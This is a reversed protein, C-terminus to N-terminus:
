GFIPDEVLDSVLCREIEAERRDFAPSDDNVVKLPCELEAIWCNVAVTSFQYFAFCFAYTWGVGPYATTEETGALFM